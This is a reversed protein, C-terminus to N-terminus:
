KIKDIAAQEKEAMIQAIALKLQVENDSYTQIADYPYGLKLLAHETLHAQYLFAEGEEISKSSGNM